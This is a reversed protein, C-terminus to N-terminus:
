MVRMKNKSKSKNQKKVPCLVLKLRINESKLGLIQEMDDHLDALFQRSKEPINEEERLHGYIKGTVKRRRNKVIVKSSAGEFFHDRNARVMILSEIAKKQITLRNLNHESSLRIQKEKKPFFLTTLLLVTSIILLFLSIWFLTISVYENKQIYNFSNILNFPTGVVYQSCIISYLANLIVLVLIIAVIVKQWKNM